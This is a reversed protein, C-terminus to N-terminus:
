QGRLFFKDLDKINIQKWTPRGHNCQDMYETKEMQRLLYNMEKVTLQKKATIASHCAITRLIHHQSQLSIQSSDFSTMDVLLNQLITIVNDKCLLAPASHIALTTPGFQCVDFGLYQLDASKELAICIEIDSAQFTLPILLKQVELKKQALQKKLKEYLIREHAAHMDVIVLGQNNQALIYIDHLQSIAQGLFEKNEILIQTQNNQDQNHQILSNTSKILTTFNQLHQNTAQIDINKEVFTMNSSNITDRVLTQNKLIENHTICNTTDQNIQIAPMQNEAHPTKLTDRIAHLVFQYVANPNRFRVEIKSPHVNVDVLHPLINIFLIYKPKKNGHLVDSYANHLAHSLLRDRVSRGNIFWYQCQRNGINLVSPKQIFGFCTILPHQNEVYLSHTIIQQGLIEIIRNQISTSNVTFKLHNNHWLSFAIHPNVIATRRIVELCHNFEMQDSKLFKKRAPINFFLDSINVTTGINGATPVIQLSESNIQMAYSMAETRSTLTLQSASAISALAEGRFGLTALSELDQLTSIKSTAHRSVALQLQTCDIGCGNDKIRILKKGGSELYIQIKDSGADIANDLLEKVVSAPREIIEGAAIQNILSDNLLIIPRKIINNQMTLLNQGVLCKSTINSINQINISTM